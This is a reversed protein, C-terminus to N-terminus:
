VEKAEIEIEIGVENSVLLTGTELAASYTLGFERRDIEGSAEFSVVRKDDMGSGIGGQMATLSVEKSVGRISLDGTVIFGDGNKVFSKSTFTIEPHNEADFFEASRLHNDRMENHTTVSAAKAAFSASANVFSDDTSEISGSFDTFTGRVTSVKLHKVKFGIRSHVPDIHWTSM